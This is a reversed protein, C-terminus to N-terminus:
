RTSGTTQSPPEIHARYRDAREPGSFLAFLLIIGAMAGGVIIVVPANNSM